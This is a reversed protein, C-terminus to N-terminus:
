RENQIEKIKEGIIFREEQPLNYWKPQRASEWDIGCKVCNYIHYSKRRRNFIDSGGYGGMNFFLPKHFFRCFWEGRLYQIIDKIKVGKM